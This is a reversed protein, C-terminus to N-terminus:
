ENAHEERHCNACLLICKEVEKLYKEWSTTNGNGIKHEKENPDLHHFDLAAICKDYGCRECKGGKLKVAQKKMAQRITTKHHVQEEKRNDKEGKETSPSCEFCYQRSHGNPLTEFEAECIKCKKIMQKQDKRTFLFPPPFKGWWANGKKFHRNPRPDFECGRRKVPAHQVLEAELGHPSARSTPLVQKELLLM